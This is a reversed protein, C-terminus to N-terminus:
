GNSTGKRLLLERALDWKGEGPPNELTDALRNEWSKFSEDFRSILYDSQDLLDFASKNSEKVTSM